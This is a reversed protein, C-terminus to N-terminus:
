HGAAQSRGMRSIVKRLRERNMATMETFQIGMGVRPHKVTVTGRADIRIGHANLSVDIATFPPLPDSTGLYCGGLSLDQLTTWHPINRGVERVNAEGCISFQQGSRHDQFHAIPHANPNTRHGLSRPPFPFALPPAAVVASAAEWIYKGTELCQLGIQGELTSGAAGVWVIRFRAKETGYRVGIIEGAADWDSVGCIRAGHQSVDVTRASVSVARGQSSMGFVRVLSERSKRAEIRQSM